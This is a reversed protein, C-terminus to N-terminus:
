NPALTSQGPLSKVGDATRALFRPLAFLEALGPVSQWMQKHLYPEVQEEGKPLHLIGFHMRMNRKLVAPQWVVAGNVRVVTALDLELVRASQNQGGLAGFGLPRFSMTEGTDRETVTFDVAIDGNAPVVVLGRQKWNRTLAEQTKAVADGVQGGSLNVNMSVKAGPLILRNPGEAIATITSAETPGPLTTPVVVASRQGGGFGVHLYWLRQDPAQAAWKGPHGLHYHWVVADYKLSYLQTNGILLHNPGAWRLDGFSPGGINPAPVGTTLNWRKIHFVSALALETGTPNIALRVQNKQFSDDPEPLANANTLPTLDGVGAGTSADLFRVIGKNHGVVYKGGPTVQWGKLGNTDVIFLAQCKPISWLVVQGGESATLVREGSLLHAWVVKPQALSEPYPAWSARPNGDAGWLDLRRGATDTTVIEGAPGVSLVGCGAPLEKGGAAKGTLLDVWRVVRPQAPDPDFGATHAYELVALPKAGGTVRLSWINDGPVPLNVPRVIPHATPAPDPKVTYTPPQTGLTQLKASARDASTLKPLAADVATGGSQISALVAQLQGAPMARAILRRAQRNTQDLDLVTSLNVALKPHREGLQAPFQFVPQGTGLDLTMENHYLWGAGDTTWSLKNEFGGLNKPKPAKLLALERGTVLDWALIQLDFGTGFLAAAKVGDAAVCLTDVHVDSGGPGPPLAFSKAVLGSKAEYVQLRKGDAALVYKGGPTVVPRARSFNDVVPFTAVTQSTRAGFILVQKDRRTFVLVQDAGVFAVAEPRQSAVVEGVPKGTATEFVTVAETQGVSRSMAFLKGDASLAHQSNFSNQTLEGKLTGFMKGTRLDFFGRAENKGNRGIAVFPAGNAAFTVDPDSFGAWAPINVAIKEPWAPQNPFPDAVLDAATGCTWSGAVILWTLLYRM